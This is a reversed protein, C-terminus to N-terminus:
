TLYPGSIENRKIVISSVYQTININYVIRSINRYSHLVFTSKEYFCKKISCRLTFSIRSYPKCLVHFVNERKYPGLVTLGTNWSAAFLLQPSDYAGRAVQCRGPSGAM